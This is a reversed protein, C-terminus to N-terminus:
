RHAAAPGNRNKNTVRACCITKLRPGLIAFIGPKTQIAWNMQTARKPTIGRTAEIVVGSDELSKKLREVMGFGIQIDSESSEVETDQDLAAVLARVYGSNQYKLGNDGYWAIGMWVAIAGFGISMALLRLKPRSFMFGVLMMVLLSVLFPSFAREVVGGAAIPYMGVYHNITDM